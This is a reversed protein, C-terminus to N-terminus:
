KLCTAVVTKMVARKASMLPNMVETWAFALKPGAV